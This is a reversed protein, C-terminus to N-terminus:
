VQGEPQNAGGIGSMGTRPTQVRAQADFYSDYPGSPLPKGDTGRGDLGRFMANYSASIDKALNSLNNAGLTALTMGLQGAGGYRNIKELIAKANAPLAALYATLGGAETIAEGFRRLLVAEIEGAVDDIWIQIQIDPPKQNTGGRAFSPYHAAVADVTTYGM